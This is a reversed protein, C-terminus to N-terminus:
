QSKGDVTIAIPSQIVRIAFQWAENNISVIPWDGVALVDLVLSKPVLMWPYRSRVSGENPLPQNLLYVVWPM